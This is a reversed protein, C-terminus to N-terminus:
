RYEDRKAPFNPYDRHPPSTTHAVPVPTVVNDLQSYYDSPDYSHKVRPANHHPHPGVNQRSSQRNQEQLFTHISAYNPLSAPDPANEAYPSPTVSVYPAPSVSVTKPTAAYPAPTPGHPFSSFPSHTESHSPRQPLEEFPSPPAAYPTPTVSKPAYPIPTVSKPIYPVPTPGPLAYPSPTVSAPHHAFPSSPTPTPSFFPIATPSPGAYPSPTKYGQQLHMYSSVEKPQQQHYQHDQPHPMSFPSTGDPLSYPSPGSHKPSYPSEATNTKGNFMAVINYEGPPLTDETMEEIIVGEARTKGEPIYLYKKAAPVGRVFPFVMILFVLKLLVPSPAWAPQSVM